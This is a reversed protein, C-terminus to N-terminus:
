RGLRRLALPVLGHPVVIPFIRSNLRMSSPGVICRPLYSIPPHGFVAVRNEHEMSIKGKLAHGGRDLLIACISFGCLLPVVKRSM